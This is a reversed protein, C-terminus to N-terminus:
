SPTRSQNTGSSHQSSCKHTKELEWFFLINGCDCTNSEENIHGPDGEIEALSKQVFLVEIEDGYEKQYCIDSRHNSFM